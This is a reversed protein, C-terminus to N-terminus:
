ATKSRQAQSYESANKCPGCDDFGVDVWVRQKYNDVYLNDIQQFMIVYYINHSPSISLISLANKKKMM